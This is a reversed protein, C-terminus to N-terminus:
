LEEWEETAPAMFVMPHPWSEPIQFHFPNPGWEGRWRNLPWFTSKPPLNRQPAKLTLPRDNLLNNFGIRIAFREEINEIRAWYNITLPEGKKVDIVKGYGSWSGVRLYREGDVAEDPDTIVTPTIFPEEKDRYNWGEPVGSADLREFSGNDFHHGWAQIKDFHVFNGDEFHRGSGASVLIIELKGDTEPMIRLQYPRWEEETAHSYFIFHGHRPTEKWFPPQWFVSETPRSISSFSIPAAGDRYGDLLIAAGMHNRIRGFVPDEVQELVPDVVPLSSRHPEALLPLPLLAILITILPANM